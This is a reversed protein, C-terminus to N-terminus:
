ISQFLLRVLLALFSDLTTPPEWQQGRPRPFQWHNGDHHSIRIPDGSLSASDDESLWADLKGTVDYLIYKHFCHVIISFMFKM